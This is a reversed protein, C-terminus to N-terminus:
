AATATVRKVVRVVFRLYAVTGWCSLLGGITLVVGVVIAFWPELDNNIWAPLVGVQDAAGALIVAIGSLTFSLGISGLVIVIIFTPLSGLALLGIIKLWRDSRPRAPADPRPSVLLELQYARALADVPGLSGLIADIPKGAAAADAIHQRIEAVVEAREAPALDTLAGDLSSLYRQVLPQDTSDDANM